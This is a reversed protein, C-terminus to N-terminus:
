DGYARKFLTDNEANLREIRDRLQQNEQQLKAVRDDLQCKVRAAQSWLFEDAAQKAELEAIREELAQVAPWLRHPLFCSPNGCLTETIGARPQHDKPSSGCLPCRAPSTM